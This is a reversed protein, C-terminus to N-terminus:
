DILFPDHAATTRGAAGCAKRAASRAAVSRTEVATLGLFGRSPRLQRHIALELLASQAALQTAEAFSGSECVRILQAIRERLSRRM